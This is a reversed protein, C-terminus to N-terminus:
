TRHIHIYYLTRYQSYLNLPLSVQSDKRKNLDIYNIRHVGFADFGSQAWLGGTVWSHGFPDVHWAVTPRGKLGLNSLIFQNGDTMQHIVASATPSAEDNMCWGGLNLQFQGNNVLNVTDQKLNDDIEQWWRHMYAMEVYTFKRLPNDELVPIITYFIWEVERIYYEDVTILWGPDDHTHGVIHIIISDGELDSLTINNNEIFNGFEGNLCIIRSILLIFGLIFVM